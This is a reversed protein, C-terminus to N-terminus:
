RRETCVGDKCAQCLDSNHPTRPKGQRRSRHIPPQYFGYYVQGIRNYVNALVKIVEEPYWMAPEYRDLKCRDCQQGFLKFLVFGEGVMLNLTFWFAVRGKMSTWGHGCEECCFRVKASDVFVSWAGPPREEVVSLFWLHPLYQTFLRQFEVQWMQEMGFSQKWTPSAVLPIATTGSFLQSQCSTPYMTPPTAPCSLVPMLPSACLVM